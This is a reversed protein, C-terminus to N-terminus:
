KGDTDIYGVQMLNLKADVNIDGTIEVGKLDPIVKNLLLKILGVEAASIVPNTVKDNPELVARQAKEILEKAKIIKRANSITGTPM